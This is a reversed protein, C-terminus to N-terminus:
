CFGVSNEPKISNTNKMDSKYYTHKYNKYSLPKKYYKDDMQDKLEQNEKIFYVCGSALVAIVIITSACVFGKVYCKAGYLRKKMIREEGEIKPSLFIFSLM